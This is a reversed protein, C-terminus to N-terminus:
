KLASAIFNLMALQQSEQDSGSAVNIQRLYEVMREVGEASCWDLLDWIAYRLEGQYDGDVLRTLSREESESTWDVFQHFHLRTIGIGDISTDWNVQD